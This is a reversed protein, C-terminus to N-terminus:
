QHVADLRDEKNEEMRDEGSNVITFHNDRKGGMRRYVCRIPRHPLPEIEGGDVEM